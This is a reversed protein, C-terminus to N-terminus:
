FALINRNLEEKNWKQERGEKSRQFNDSQQPQPIDEKNQLKIMYAVDMFVM